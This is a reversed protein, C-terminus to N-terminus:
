YPADPHKLEHGVQIPRIADMVLAYSVKDFTRFVMLHGAFEDPLRVKSNKGFTDESRDWPGNEVRDVVSNGVQWSSFVTGNDVGDRAGVSIAVVDRPGGTSLMDAVAMIRARGFDLQRNPAHPFFQLDYPQAEVPILRDGVRVERGSDDLLLTTVEIGGVEGRTVTGTNQRMLEYGLLEHGNDSVVANTWYQEFDITRKGRFDLDDKHFIDCCAERDLRTYRQTPRVVQYRQGPQANELGEIYAVQGQTSRLRETELSVVYPLQEFEDVVRLDKLFPEVESLPVGTVPAVERPGAEAVTVRDLYALSLVDGPYILHPNAVQPNAQWIEPWLWPKELFRGAIDWLTDGKQVVYTDPHDGRIEAALAHAAITLLAATMVARIPKLM